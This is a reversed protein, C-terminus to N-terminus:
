CISPPADPSPPTTDQLRDLDYYFAEMMTLLQKTTATPSAGDRLEHQLQILNEKFSDVVRQTNIINYIKNFNSSEEFALNIYVDLSSLNTHGTWQQIKQKFTETNLLTRRFSDENEFQHQEILAVFLKTIFRHRFMHPCSKETIGAAKVLTSIEQTITNPKLKRGTTESVFVYGDDNERGCTLRIIRQRNKEIFELLFTIDHSAIPVYRFEERGGPKKATLLKLMPEHMQSAKYVSETTLAAVESRRGGTIELLKLMIYRRKRQFISRSSSLVAEHLKKIADSSIPLRKRKPDPSPFSRHHWYRRILKGRGNHLGETKIGFEKQAARIQGKLSVFEDNQYLRGVSALFDLCNRGIAIVSNADRTYIEITRARREGQLTKIFFTFQNDTLEHLNIMNDYCYRLLHSINAAYTLLTGGSNKRSLGRHYLELMYTNAPLCWRGDPWTLMPIDDAPYTKVKRKSDVFIPLEFTPTTIQYLKTKSTMSKQLM